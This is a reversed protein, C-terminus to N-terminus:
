LWRKPLSSMKTAFRALHANISDRRARVSVLPRRRARATLAVTCVTGDGSAEHLRFRKGDDREDETERRECSGRERLWRRLGGRLRLGRLQGIREDGDGLLHA